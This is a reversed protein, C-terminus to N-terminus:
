PPTQEERPELPTWSLTRLLVQYGFWDNRLECREPPAVQSPAGPDLGGEYTVTITGQPGGSVREFTRSLLRGDRWRERLREGDREGQREEGEQELPPQLWTRHVDHMMFEPPFPLPLDVFPTYEVHSGRQTLAFARAGHPALAVLTLTAGRKELVARFSHEGQAHRITVEQDLAWDGSFEGPDRLVTPYADRSVPGPPAQPAAGCGALTM